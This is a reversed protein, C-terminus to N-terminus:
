KQYFDISRLLLKTMSRLGEAFRGQEDPLEHNEKIVSRTTAINSTFGWNQNNDPTGFTKVFAQNYATTVNETPDFDFDHKSCSTFNLGMM